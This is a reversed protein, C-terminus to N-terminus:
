IKINKNKRVCSNYELYKAKQETLVTLWNSASLIFPSLLKDGILIILLVSAHSTIPFLFHPTTGETTLRRVVVCMQLDATLSCLHPWVNQTCLYHAGSPFGDMGSSVLVPEPTGSACSTDRGLKVWDRKSYLSPQLVVGCNKILSVVKQKSKMSM